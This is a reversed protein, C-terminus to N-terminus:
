KMLCYVRGVTTDIIQYVLEGDENFDITRVKIMANLEVRKRM